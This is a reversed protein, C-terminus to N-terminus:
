LFILFASITLLSLVTSIVITNAVFDEQLDYQEAIIFCTVASPMASVLVTLPLYTKFGAVGKFVLAMFLPLALLKLSATLLSLALHKKMFKGHLFGGLAFLAVPSATAGLMTLPKKLIDFFPQNLNLVSLAMGLFLAVMLPNKAFDRFYSKFNRSKVVLFEAALIGFVIGFALHGTAAAIVSPFLSSGFAGGAIPFGMYITNGVLATVYVAAKLRASMKFFHLAFFLLASFLLLGLLNLGLLRWMVAHRWNIEWFSALIIAPLAVYYVYANLTHIWHIKVVNRRRLYFGAFIIVFIPLVIQVISM